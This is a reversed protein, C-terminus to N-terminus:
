VIGERWMLFKLVSVEASLLVNRPMEGTPVEEPAEQLKLTQQDIYECMSPEIIYPDMGCDQNGLIDNAGGGTDTDARQGPCRRPIPFSSFPGSSVLM